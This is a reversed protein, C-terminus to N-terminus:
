VSVGRLFPLDYYRTEDDETEIEYRGATWAAAMQALFDSISPAFVRRHDEDSGIIIIQGVTGGPEPALDFAFANGGGDKAFPLWGPIWYERKVKDPEDVTVPEAMDAMGDPGQDDAVSQWLSWAHAAEDTSLFEYFGFVPAAHPPWAEELGDRVRGLSPRGRQGNNLRYFARIEDTLRQGTVTELIDLAANTAPPHLIARVAFGEGEVLDLWTTWRAALDPAM